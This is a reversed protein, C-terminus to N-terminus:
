LYVLKDALKELDVTKKTEWAQLAIAGMNKALPMGVTFIFSPISFLDSHAPTDSCVMVNKGEKSYAAFDYTPLHIKEVANLKNKQADCLMRYANGNRADRLSLYYDVPEHTTTTELLLHLSCVPILPLQLAYCLGLAASAGIRLGTYSGPGVSLAIASLHALSINAEKVTAVMLSHLNELHLYNEHTVSCEALLINECFVAVSCAKGSTELALFYVSQPCSPLPM